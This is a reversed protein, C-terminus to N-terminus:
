LGFARCFEEETYDYPVEEVRESAHAAQLTGAMSGGGPVYVVVGGLSHVFEAENPFRVDPIAVKIGERLYTEVVPRAVEIWYDEKYARGVETGLYQLLTRVWPEKKPGWIAAYLGPFVRLLEQLNDLIGPYLRLAAMSALVRVGDALPVRVYNHPALRTWYFRDKGSGARGSIGVVCPLVGRSM